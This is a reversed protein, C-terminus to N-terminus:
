PTPAQVPPDDYMEFDEEDALEYQQHNINLKRKVAQLKDTASRKVKRKSREFKQLKQDM